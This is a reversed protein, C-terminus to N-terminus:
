PLLFGHSAPICVMGAERAPDFKAFEVVVSEPLKMANRAKEHLQECKALAGYPEM